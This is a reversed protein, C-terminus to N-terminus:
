VRDTSARRQLLPEQRVAVPRLVEVRDSPRGRPWEPVHIGETYAVRFPASSHAIASARRRPELSTPRACNCYYAFCLDSHAHRADVVVPALQVDHDVTSWSPTETQKAGLVATALVDTKCTQTDIERSIGWQACAYMSGLAGAGNEREGVVRARAQPTTEWSGAFSGDRSMFPLRQPESLATAKCNRGSRMSSEQMDQWDPYLYLGHAETMTAISATEKAEEGPRGSSCCCILCRSIPGWCCCCLTRGITACWNDVQGDVTRTKEGAFLEVHWHIGLHVRQLIAIILCLGHLGILVWVAV